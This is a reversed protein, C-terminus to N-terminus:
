ILWGRGRAYDLPDRANKEFNCKSCTLQLNRRDNSGGKAVPIIHDIHGKGKLKIKCYACRDKQMHRIEAIDEATFYGGAGRQRGERRVRIAKAREPNDKFWQKLYDSAAKKQEPTRKARWERSRRNREVRERKYRERQKLRLHERNAERWKKNAIRETEAYKPRVERKKANIQDKNEAHNARRRANVRDSNKQKYERQYDNRRGPKAAVRRAEGVRAVSRKREMKEADLKDAADRARQREIVQERNRDYYERGKERKVALRREREEASMNARSKAQSKRVAARRRDVRDAEKRALEEKSLIPKAM